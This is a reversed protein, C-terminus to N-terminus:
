EVETGEESECRSENQQIMDQEGFRSLGKVGRHRQAFAGEQEEM